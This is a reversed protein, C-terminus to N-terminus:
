HQFTLIVNTQHPYKLLKKKLEQYPKELVRLCAPLCSESISLLIFDEGTLLSFISSPRSMARHYFSIFVVAILEMKYIVVHNM